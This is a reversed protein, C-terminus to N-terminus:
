AESEELDHRVRALIGRLGPVSAHGIREAVARFPCGRDRLYLADLILEDAQRSGTERPPNPERSRAPRRHFKV